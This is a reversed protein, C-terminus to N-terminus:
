SEDQGHKSTSHNSLIRVTSKEQNLGLETTAIGIIREPSSLEAVELQLYANLENIQAIEKELFQIEYNLQSIQANGALLVSLCGVVLLLAAIYLVKEGASIGYYVIEKKVEVQPQIHSQEVVRLHNMKKQRKQYKLAVNGYQYM